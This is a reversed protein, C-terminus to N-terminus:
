GPPVFDECATDIASIADNFIPSFDPACVSGWFGFPFSEVFERLRPAASAGSNDTPEFPGCTGGPIDSDSLLGIMVVSNPNGFKTAVVDDYWDAPDGLSALVDDEDTILTVILLADDRLFGENCAGPAAKAPDLAAVTASVPQEIPSGTTGVQAMCPFVSQLDDEDTAFRLGSAFPGCVANSSGFGATQTVLDGLTNCGPENGAYNDSTVVGVHYSEVNELSAEIATIFGPFSALLQAQQNTMSGSNDVVFLFDVGQCGFEDIVGADPIIGLDFDVPPDITDEGEGEAAQGTTTDASPDLTTAGTTDSSPASASTSGATAAVTDVGSSGGPTADSSGGGCALTSALGIGLSTELRKWVM